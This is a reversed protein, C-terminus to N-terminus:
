TLESLNTVFDPLRPPASKQTTPETVTLDLDLATLAASVSARSIDEYALEVHPVPALAQRLEELQLAHTFMGLGARQPDLTIM